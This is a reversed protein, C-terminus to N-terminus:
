ETDRMAQVRRLLNGVVPDNPRLANMKRLTEIAEAKKGAQEYLLALATLYEFSQPELRTAEELAGVADANRGLLYLLMGRQYHPRGSEPLLESDRELLEVEEERLERIEQKDAQGSQELLRAVESRPGSLYPEMRIADRLSAISKRVDGQSRALEALRLNPGARDFLVTTDEDYEDILEKLKKIQQPKRLTNPARIALADVAANRVLRTEDSLMDGIDDAHSAVAESSLSGVAAARVLPSPHDLAERCLDDSQPTQFNALARLATARVIDPTRRGPLPAEYALLDSIKGVADPWGKWAADLARAYHPDNPRKPGYWKKIAEAAWAADEGDKTHCDNCANPTGLEVSLDPRPIRFSHDRRGDNVMYHRQPMHCNVCLSGQPDSHFHHAKNDYKQHCQACLANGEYKLKLSHPDHCDSCKVNEHYMRSQLFSGYVYVEDEIQGDAHYLGPELLALDYHDFYDDGADFGGALVGRRSHCPACAAIQATNSEQKLKALGYGHRRDWFLSNAEALEVHMSGPGHCAECSVDIENYTTHYTNAKLDFNKKLDTSHCEACMTNWNQALGTWHLPDHPDLKLEVADPPPVEFWKKQETDWSVRLVQVRGGEMEVMYQQLPTYGFTYAIKYDHNEGDPGETNVYFDKGKRFFKSVVGLREFTADDFDGLVSEDTPLEMARDHHSGEFLQAEQQHCAVCRDRGVYTAVADAPLAVYWDAFCWSLALLALAAAILVRKSKM